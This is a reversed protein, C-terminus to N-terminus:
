NGGKAKALVSLSAMTYSRKGQQIAKIKEFTTPDNGKDLQQVLWCNENHSKL